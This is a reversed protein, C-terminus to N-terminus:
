MLPELAGVRGSLQEPLERAGHVEAAGYSGRSVSAGLPAGRVGGEWERVPLGAAPERPIGAASGPRSPGPPGGLGGAGPALRDGAVSCLPQHFATLTM